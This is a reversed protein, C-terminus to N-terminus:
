TRKFNRRIRSFDILQSVPRGHPCNQVNEERLQSLLSQMESRELRQNARVASHCAMSALLEHILASADLSPAEFLRDLIERIAGGANRDGALFDPMTRVSLQSPGFQEAEIGLRALTPLIESLREADEPRVDIVDPFMLPQSAVRGKKRFEELLRRFILGEHAAHQDVIVLGEPGEALIYSNDLQGIVRLQKPDTEAEGAVPEEMTNKPFSVTSESYAPRESNFVHSAPTQSPNAARPESISDGPGHATEWPLPINEANVSSKGPFESPGAPQRRAESGVSHARNEWARRTSHYVARYVADTHHFRVEQKAPHVNVDVDEPDVEMFIVGAPYTRSMFFGKAAENLAKWLLRNGISRGNLFFYFARSSSRGEDPPAVHGYVRIGPGEGKVCLLKEVLEHGLLPWLAQPYDETGSTRLVERGDSKLSFRIEPNAAAHLRVQQSIHGAETQRRKLFRLRAPIKLFLDEVEVVTGAPCGAPEILKDRGFDMRVRWGSDQGEVQSTVTFRSVSAISPMAEGRFGLTRIAALDEESSIKSTAHREVALELDQRDMGCGNDTVRILRRGGDIIEVGISDAGADIANELLERVVSAPREVVEGAAIQDAIHPPLRHIRGM